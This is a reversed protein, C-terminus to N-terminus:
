LENGAAHRDSKYLRNLSAGDAIEPLGAISTLVSLVMTTATVALMQPWDLATIAVLETGILTVLTQAGTKVARMCAAVLWKKVYEGM